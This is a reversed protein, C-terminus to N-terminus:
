TYITSDPHIIPSDPRKYNRFKFKFKTIDDIFTGPKIEGELEIDCFHDVIKVVGFVFCKILKVRVFESFYRVKTILAGDESKHIVSVISMCLPLSRYIGIYPDMVIKGGDKEGVYVVANRGWPSNVLLISKHPITLEETYKSVCYKEGMESLCRAICFPSLVAYAGDPAYKSKRIEDKTRGTIFAICTNVSDNFKSQEVPKGYEKELDLSNKQVYQSRQEPTYTRLNTNCM